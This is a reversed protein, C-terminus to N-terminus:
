NKNIKGNKYSMSYRSTNQTDDQDDSGTGSEGDSEQEDDSANIGEQVSVTDEDLMNDQLAKEFNSLTGGFMTKWQLLKNDDMDQELNITETWAFKEIPIFKMLVHVILTGAGLCWCTITQGKTITTIQLLASGLRYGALVHVMYCQLGMEFCFIIWFFPNNCLTKFVNKEAGLIVRSNIQNFLNMLVFCHFIMTHLRMKDTAENNDDRLVETILNFSKEFFMMHGFYMLILIALMQYVVQGIINRWM